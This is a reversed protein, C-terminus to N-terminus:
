LVLSAPSHTKESIAKGTENIYPVCNSRRSLHSKNKGRHEMRLIVLVVVGVDRKHPRGQGLQGNTWDLTLM